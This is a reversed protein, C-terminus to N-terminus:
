RGKNRHYWNHFMKIREPITHNIGAETIIQVAIPIKRRLVDNPELKSLREGADFLLNIRECEAIDPKAAQAPATQPPKDMFGDLQKGPGPMRLMEKVFRTYKTKKYGGAGLPKVTVGFKAMAARWEDARKALKKFDGIYSGELYGYRAMYFRGVMSQIALNTRKTREDTTTARFNKMLFPLSPTENGPQISIAYALSEIEEDSWHLNRPM